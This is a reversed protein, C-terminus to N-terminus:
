AHAIFDYAARQLYRKMQGEPEFDDGDQDVIKMIRMKMNPGTGVAIATAVGHDHGFKWPFNFTSPDSPGKATGLEGEKLKPSYSRLVDQEKERGRALRDHMQMAADGTVYASEGSDTDRVTSNGESDDEHAFEEILPLDESTQDQRIKEALTNILIQVEEPAIGLEAAVKAIGSPRLKIGAAIDQTTAGVGTLMAELQQLKSDDFENLVAPDEMANDGYGATDIISNRTSRGAFDYADIKFEHPTNQKHGYDNISM